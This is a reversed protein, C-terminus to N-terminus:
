CHKIQLVFCLIRTLFSVNKIYNQYLFQLIKFQICVRYVKAPITKIACVVQKRKQTCHHLSKAHFFGAFSNVSNLQFYVTSYYTFCCMIFYQFSVFTPVSDYQLFCLTTGQQTRDFFFRQSFVM